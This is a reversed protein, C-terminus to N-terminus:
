EEVAGALRRLHNRFTHAPDVARRALYEAFATQDRLTEGAGLRRVQEREIDRIRDAAALVEDMRDAAVFVVGDDDALVHDGSTVLHPGFRASVLEEPDREAARFPGAPFRGYSFVPLGIDVLESTDRHLGWLVLGAVGAARAELVLLDGVCGEDTRGGNDVVLVDGPAAADLAELFVEAGGAFRAPLVRGALRQGPVVPGIGSPAVRLPVNARVCADALLATSLESFATSTDGM